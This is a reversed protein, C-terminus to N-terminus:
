SQTLALLPLDAALKAAKAEFSVVQEHETRLAVAHRRGDQSAAGFGHRDGALPLGLAQVERDRQSDHQEFARTLEAQAPCVDM